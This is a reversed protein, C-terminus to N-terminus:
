WFQLNVRKNLMNFKKANKEHVRVAHYKASGVARKEEM